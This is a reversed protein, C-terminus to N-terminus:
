KAPAWFGKGTAPDIQWVEEHDIFKYHQPAGGQLDGFFLSFYSITGGFALPPGHNKEFL